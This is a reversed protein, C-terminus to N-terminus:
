YFTYRQDAYYIRPPGDVFGSTRRGIEVWRFFTETAHERELFGKYRPLM